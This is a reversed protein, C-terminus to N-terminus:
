KIAKRGTDTLQFISAPFGHKRKKILGRELLSDFTKNHIKRVEGGRGIGGRQLKAFGANIYSTSVGMEWGENMLTLVELQKKTPRTMGM